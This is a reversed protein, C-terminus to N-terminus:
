RQYSSGGRDSENKATFPQIPEMM